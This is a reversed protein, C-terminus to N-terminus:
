GALALLTRRAAQKRKWIATESRGLRRAIRGDSLGQAKLRIVVAQASTLLALVMGESEDAPAATPLARATVADSWDAPAEDARRPRYHDVAARVVIARLWGYARSDDARLQHLSAAARLWAESVVDEATAHDRTRTGAFAVLRANYLRFLSDLRAAAEPALTATM